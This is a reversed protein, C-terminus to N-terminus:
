AAKGPANMLVNDAEERRLTIHYGKVVFEMPDNLPAYKVVKVETDRVFGMEMLRLRLEPDGCAQFVTGTEGPKYSSLTVINDDLCEKEPFAPCDKCEEENPSRKM